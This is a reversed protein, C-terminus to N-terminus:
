IKEGVVSIISKIHHGLPQLTLGPENRMICSNVEEWFAASKLLQWERLEAPSIEERTRVEDADINKKLRKKM